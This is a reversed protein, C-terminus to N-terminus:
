KLFCINAIDFIPSHKMEQFRRSRLFLAVKLCVGPATYLIAGSWRGALYMRRENQSGSLLWHYIVRYSGPQLLVTPHQFIHSFALCPLPNRSSCQKMSAPFVHLTGAFLRFSFVRLGKLGAPKRSIFFTRYISKPAFALTVHTSCFSNIGLHQATQTKTRDILYGRKTKRIKVTSM